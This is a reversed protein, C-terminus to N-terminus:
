PNFIINCNETDIVFPIELETGSEDYFALINSSYEYRLLWPTESGMHRSLIVAIRNGLIADLNETQQSEQASMEFLALLNEDYDQISMHLIAGTTDDLIFNAVCTNNFEIWVNWVAFAISDSFYALEYYADSNSFSLPVEAISSLVQMCQSIAWDPEEPTDISLTNPWETRYALLKEPVNSDKTTDEQSLLLNVEEMDVAEKQSYLERDTLFVATQPLLLGCVLALALLAGSFIRYKM